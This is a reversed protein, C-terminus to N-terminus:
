TLHLQELDGVTLGGAVYQASFDYAVNSTGIEATVTFSTQGGWALAPVSCSVSGKTTATPATTVSCGPSASVFTTDAPLEFTLTGAPATLAAVGLPTFLLSTTPVAFTDRAIETYTSPGNGGSFAVLAENEDTDGGAPNPGPYDYRIRGDKYFVVQLDREPTDNDYSAMDVWQLAFASGDGAVVLRVEGAVDSPDGTVTELELDGWFPFVGRFYEAVQAATPSFDVFYDWAAEGFQAWGNTSAFVNSYSVGFFPFEFPLPVNATGDDPDTFTLVTTAGTLFPQPPVSTMTYGHAGVIGNGVRATLTVPDGAAPRDGAADWEFGWDM